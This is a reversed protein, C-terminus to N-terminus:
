KYFKDWGVANGDAPMILNKLENGYPNKMLQVTGDCLAVHFAGNFLGGLKPLPKDKDFPLDAPRTWTVPDEAEFVMGTSSTGDPIDWPIRPKKQGGFMTGEGTFVQYFTEGDNAKARIPAYTKPMRGILKKNNASDWPEDLKFQSYLARQEIFPLVAVRWSLLPKGDKDTLDTPLNGFKDNHDLFARAIQKLNKSSSYLDKKSITANDAAQGLLAAFMGALVLM